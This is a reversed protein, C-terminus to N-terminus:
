QGGRGTIQCSTLLAIRRTSWNEWIYPMLLKGLESHVYHLIHENNMVVDDPANQFPEFGAVLINALKLLGKPGPNDENYRRLIKEAVIECLMARTLNVTQHHTAYSQERIFQTRNVMLCYVISLDQTRYFQDVLPRVVSINM